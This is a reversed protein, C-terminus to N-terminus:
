NKINLIVFINVKLYALHYALELVVMILNRLHEYIEHNLLFEWIDMPKLNTWLFIIIVIIIHARALICLTGFNKRADWM